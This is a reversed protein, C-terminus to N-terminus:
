ELVAEVVFLNLPELGAGGEVDQALLLAVVAREILAGPNAGPRKGKDIIFKSNHIKFSM